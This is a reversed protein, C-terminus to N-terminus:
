DLRPQRSLCVPPQRGQLSLREPVPIDRREQCRLQRTALWGIGAELLGESARVGSCMLFLTVGNSSTIIIILLIQHAGTAEQFTSRLARCHCYIQVFICAYTRRM